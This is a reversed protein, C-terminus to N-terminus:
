DIRHLSLSCALSKNRVFGILKNRFLCVLFVYEDSCLNSEFEVDDACKRDSEAM